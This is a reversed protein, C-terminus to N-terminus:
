SNKNIYEYINNYIKASDLRRELKKRKSEYEKKLEWLESEISDIESSKDKSYANPDRSIVKIINWYDYDFIRFYLFPRLIRFFAKCLDRKSECQKIKNISLKPFNHRLYDCYSYCHGTMKVDKLLTEPLVETMDKLRINRYIKTSFKWYRDGGKQTYGVGHSDIGWDPSLTAWKYSVIADRLVLDILDQFTLTNYWELKEEYPISIKLIGM